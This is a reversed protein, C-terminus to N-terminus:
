GFEDGSQGTRRGETLINNHLILFVVNGTLECPTRSMIVFKVNVTKERAVMILFTPQHVRRFKRMGTSGPIQVVLLEIEREILELPHVGETEEALPLCNIFTRASHVDSQKM